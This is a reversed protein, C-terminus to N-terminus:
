SKVGFPRTCFRNEDKKCLARKDFIGRLCKTEIVSDVTHNENVKIRHYRVSLPNIVAGSDVIECANKYINDFSLLSEAEGVRPFGKTKVSTKENSGDDTEDVIM